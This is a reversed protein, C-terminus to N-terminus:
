VRDRFAWNAAWRITRKFLRGITVIVFYILLSIAVIAFLLSMTGSIFYVFRPRKIQPNEVSLLISTFVGCATLVACAALVEGKSNPYMSFGWIGIGILMVFAGSATVWLKDAFTNNKEM